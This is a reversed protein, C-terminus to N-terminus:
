AQYWEFIRNWQQRQFAVQLKRVLQNLEEPQSFQYELKIKGNEFYPDTVVKADKPLDLATILETIREQKQTLQPLRIGRLAQRLSKVKDAPSATNSIVVELLKYRSLVDEVSLGDRASIERILTLLENLKASSPRIPKLVNLLAQQTSPTFEGIRAACALTVGTELIHEKMPETLETLSSLQYLTKYSPVEKLLPLIHDVVEDEPLTCFLKLRTIANGKEVLNLSRTTGNDHLNMLFAQAPSLDQAEYIICPLSTFGLEQAVLFRKFGAIIQYTGEQTHRLLLPQIIGINKISRKLEELKPKFTIRYSDDKINVSATPLQQFFM